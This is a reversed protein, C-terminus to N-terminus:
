HCGDSKTPSLNDFTVDFLPIHLDNDSLLNRQLPKLNCVCTRHLCYYQEGFLFIMIGYRRYESDFQHSTDNIFVWPDVFRRALYWRQCWCCFLSIKAYRNDRQSLLCCYGVSIWSMDEQYHIFRGKADYQLNCEMPLLIAVFKIFM